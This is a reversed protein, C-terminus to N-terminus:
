ISFDFINKGMFFYNIYNLLNLNYVCCGDEVCIKMVNFDIVICECGDGLIYNYIFCEIVMLFIFKGYFGGGVILM